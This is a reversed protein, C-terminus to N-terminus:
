GCCVTRDRLFHLYCSSFVVNGRANCHFVDEVARNLRVELATAENVEVM